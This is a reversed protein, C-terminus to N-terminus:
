KGWVILSVGAVSPLGGYVVQATIREQKRFFLWSTFIM